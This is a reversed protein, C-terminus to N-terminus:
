PRFQQLTIFSNTFYKNPQSFINISITITVAIPINLTFFKKEKKLDTNYHLTIHSNHCIVVSTIIQVSMPQGDIVPSRSTSCSWLTSTFGTHPLGMLLFM